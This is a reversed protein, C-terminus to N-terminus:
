TREGTVLDWNEHYLEKEWEKVKSGVYYEGEAIVTDLGTHTKIATALAKQCILCLDWSLWNERELTESKFYDELKGGTFKFRSEYPFKKQYKTIGDGLILRDVYTLYGLWSVGEEPQDNAKIKEWDFFTDINEELFTKRKFFLENKNM